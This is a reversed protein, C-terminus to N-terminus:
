DHVLHQDQTPHILERIRKFRHIRDSDSLKEFDFICKRKAGKDTSSTGASKASMINIDFNFYPKTKTTTEIVQDAYSKGQGAVLVPREHIYTSQCDGEGKNKETADSCQEFSQYKLTVRRHLTQLGANTDSSVEDQIEKGNTCSATVDEGFPKIPLRRHLFKCSSSERTEKGKTSTEGKIRRHNDSSEGSSNMKHHYTEKTGKFFVTALDFAGKCHKAHISTDPGLQSEQRVSELDDLSDTKKDVTLKERLSLETGLKENRQIWQQSLPTRVREHSYNRLHNEEIKKSLHASNFFLGCTGGLIHDSTNRPRMCHTISNCAEEEDVTNGNNLYDNPSFRYPSHGFKISKQEVTFLHQDNSNFLLFADEPSLVLSEGVKTKPLNSQLRKGKALPVFNQHRRGQTTQYKSEDDVVNEVIRNKENFAHNDIALGNGCHYKGCLHTAGPLTDKVGPTTSNKITMMVKAARLEKRTTEKVLGKRGIAPTGVLKGKFSRSKETNLYNRHKETQTKTLSPVECLYDDCRKSASPRTRTTEAQYQATNHAKRKMKNNHTLRKKFTAHGNDMISQSHKLVEGKIAMKDQTKTAALVHRINQHEESSLDNDRLSLQDQSIRTIHYDGAPLAKGKRQKSGKHLSSSAKHELKEITSAIREKASETENSVRENEFSAKRKDNEVSLNEKTTSVSSRTTRLRENNDSYKSCVAERKHMAKGLRGARDKSSIKTERGRLVRSKFSRTMHQEEM